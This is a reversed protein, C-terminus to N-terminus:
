TPNSDWWGLWKSEPHMPVLALHAVNKAYDELTHLHTYEDYDQHYDVM